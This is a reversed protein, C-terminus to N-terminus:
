VPLSANASICGGLFTTTLEATSNLAAKGLPSTGCGLGLVFSRAMVDALYHSTHTHDKPYGDSVVAAGLNKLAQAAYAGHPVYYVGAGPGAWRLM